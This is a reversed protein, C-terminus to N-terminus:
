NWEILGMLLYRKKDPNIGHTCSPVEDLVARVPRGAIVGWDKDSEDDYGSASSTYEWGHRATIEQRDTDDYPVYSGQLASQIGFAM